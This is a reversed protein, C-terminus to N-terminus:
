WKYAVSFTLKRRDGYFCATPSSCSGVYTEDAVNSVNVAARWRDREYHIAADGLVFDPVRLTNQQDAFSQGTYRVGAGFGFGKWAGDQLTYDLWLSGFQQPTNTPVKGNVTLDLDRTVELEYATYAGILSLGDMLTATVEAEVGRSRQQGAQVSNLVNAPDTTLVNNRTLNFLAVGATLPLVPSQYKVGVEEQEGTEPVFARQTSTNIGVIPSFSTSYSVYPAIGGDLNYIAGVKGSFADPTSNGSSSPFLRNDVDTQVWDHRGALVLTLRNLKIQDQVYVGVQDQTTETKIYRSTPVAQQVYVPNLLNLSSGLVAGQTDRIDYHKYDIGFLAIHQLVYTRFNFEAQNDIDLQDASPRTVFNFRSLDASTATPPAAYGIGFLTQFDVDLHSYRLNQRVAINPNLIHEFEYGVMSQDRTFKDISPESTFLDTPIRGYPAAKVTGQYPLFNQGNTADHQYQGLFTLTTGDGPRYTLSPAVFARDNDTFDTQTGGIRGLSLFRYAWEQKAGAVGGVDVAGYVNGFENVGAEVTGFTTFTPMKSVANILGGPNGGGYLVASPGRVVEIRELGWPELKYTAFSTSFLQLGDLYYGTEQETFGRILFWDNRTDAGFTQSHIGPSYRTAEDITQVQQDRIQKAGIVSIAQPTEVLPTPTKTGSASQTAFYGDIPGTATQEKKGKVEITDLEVTAGTANSASQGLAPRSCVASLVLLSSVLTVAGVRGWVAEIPVRHMVRRSPVSGARNTWDIM